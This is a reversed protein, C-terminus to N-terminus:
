TTTPVERIRYGPMTECQTENKSQWPFPNSSGQGPSVWFSYLRAQILHFRLRLGAKGPEPLTDGRTWAVTMCTGNQPSALVQYWTIPKCAQKEYLPEGTEGHLVEVCLSGGRALIEVNVVLHLQQRKSGIKQLHVQRSIPAQWTLRETTIYGPLAKDDDQSIRDDTGISAFGDRRFKGMYVSCVKNTLARLMTKQSPKNWGDYYFDKSYGTYSTFYYYLVSNVVLLSQAVM